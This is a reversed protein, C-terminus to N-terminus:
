SFRRALIGTSNLKPHHYCAVLIHYSYATGAHHACHPLRQLLSRVASEARQLLSRVADAM